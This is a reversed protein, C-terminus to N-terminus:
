SGDHKPTSRFAFSRRSAAFPEWIRGQAARGALRDHDVRARDSEHRRQLSRVRDGVNVSAVAPGCEAIVGLNEHGFIKGAELDTRGEYM